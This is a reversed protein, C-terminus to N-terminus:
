EMSKHERWIAKLKALRGRAPPTPKGKLHRQHEKSGPLFVYSTEGIDSIYSGGVIISLENVLPEVSDIGSWVGFSKELMFVQVKPNRKLTSKIFRVLIDKYSDTPISKFEKKYNQLDNISLKFVILLLDFDRLEGTTYYRTDDYLKATLNGSYTNGYRDKGKINIGGLNESM